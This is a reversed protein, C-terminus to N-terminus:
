AAAPFPALEVGQWSLPFQQEATKPLRLNLVLEEVTITKPNERLAASVAASYIIWDKSPASMQLGEPDHEFCYEYHAKMVRKLAGWTEPVNRGAVKVDLDLCHGIFLKTEPDRKVYCHWMGVGGTQATNTM